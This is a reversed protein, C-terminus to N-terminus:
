RELQMKQTEKVVSLLSKKPRKKDTAMSMYPNAAEGSVVGPYLSVFIFCVFL